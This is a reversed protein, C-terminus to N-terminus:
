GPKHQPLEQSRDADGTSVSGSETPLFLTGWWFSVLWRGPSPDAQLAPVQQSPDQSRQVPLLLALPASPLSTGCPLQFLQQSPSNRASFAQRWMLGKIHPFRHFWIDFTVWSFKMSPLLIKRHWFSGVVCAISILTPSNPKLPKFM